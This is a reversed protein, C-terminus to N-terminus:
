TTNHTVIPAITKLTIPLRHSISSLKKRHRNLRSLGESGEIWEPEVEKLGSLRWKGRDVWAGSGEIWESDVEKLGSLSWKGRDVWAGSGEIWEPEVKKM